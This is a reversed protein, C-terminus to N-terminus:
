LRVNKQLNSIAMKYFSFFFAESQMYKRGGIGSFLGPLEQNWKGM